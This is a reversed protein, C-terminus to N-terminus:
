KRRIKNLENISKNIKVITEIKPKIDKFYLGYKLREGGVRKVDNASLKSLKFIVHDLMINSVKEVTSYAEDFQKENM